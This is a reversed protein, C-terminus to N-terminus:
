LRDQDGRCRWLLQLSVLCMLTPFELICNNSGLECIVHYIFLGLKLVCFASRESIRLTISFGFGSLKLRHGALNPLPQVYPCWSENEM